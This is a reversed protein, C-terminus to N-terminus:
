EGENIQKIRKLKKSKLELEELLIERFEGSTILKELESELLKPMLKAMLRVRQQQLQRLAEIEDKM